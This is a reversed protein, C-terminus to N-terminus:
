GALVLILQFTAELDPGLDQSRLGLELAELGDLRDVHAPAPGARQPRIVGGGCPAHEVDLLGVDIVLRFLCSPEADLEVAIKIGFADDPLKM